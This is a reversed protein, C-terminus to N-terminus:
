LFPILDDHTAGPCDRELTEFGTRLGHERCPDKSTGSPIFPTFKKCKVHAPGVQSDAEYRELPVALKFDRLGLIPNCLLLLLFVSAFEKVETSLADSLKNVGMKWIDGMLVRNHHSERERIRTELFPNIMSNQNTPGLSEPRRVHLAVIHSFQESLSELIVVHGSDHSRVHM